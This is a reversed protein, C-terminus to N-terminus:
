RDEGSKKQKKGMTGSGHESEREQQSVGCSPERRDFITAPDVRLLAVVGLSNGKQSAARHSNLPFTYRIKSVIQM